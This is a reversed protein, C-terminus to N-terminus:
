NNRVGTESKKWCCNNVQQNNLSGGQERVGNRSTKTSDARGNERVSREKYWRAQKRAPAKTTLGSDQCVTESWASGRCCSQASRVAPQWSEAQRPHLPFVSSVLRQLFVGSYSLAPKFHWCLALTAFPTFSVTQCDYQPSSLKNNTRVSCLMNTSVEKNWVDKSGEFSLCLDVCPLSAAEM